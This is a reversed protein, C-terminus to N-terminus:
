VAGAYAYGGSLPFSYEVYYGVADSWHSRLIGKTPNGHDIKRTGEIFHTEQFDAITDVVQPHLLMGVNGAADLLKANVANTRNVIGPNKTRKHISADYPEMRPDNRILGWDSECTTTNRNEGSADGFQELTDVIAIPYRRVFEEILLETSGDNRISIEDLIYLVSRQFGFIPTQLVHEQAIIAVRPNVGFDHFLLLPKTEDRKPLGDFGISPLGRHNRTIEARAVHRLNFFSTYVRGVGINGSEGLVEIRFRDPSMTRRQLEIFERRNPLLYNDFTSVRWVRIEEGSDGDLVKPPMVFKVHVWHSTSWPPNATCRMQPQVPNFTEGDAHAYAYKRNAQPSNRNRGTLFTFANEGQSWEQLEDAWISDYEHSKLSRYANNAVSSVRFTHGKAPGKIMTISLDVLNQKWHKDQLFGYDILRDKFTVLTGDKVMPRSAGVILSQTKPYQLARDILWEAGSYSKGSALGGIVVGTKGTYAHFDAQWECCLSDYLRSEAAIV